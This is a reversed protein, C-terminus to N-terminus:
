DEFGKARLVDRVKANHAAVRQKERETDAPDPFAKTGFQGAYNELDQEPREPRLRGHWAAYQDRRFYDLYYGEGDRDALVRLTEDTTSAPDHLRLVRGQPLPDPLAAAHKSIPGLAAVFAARVAPPITPM